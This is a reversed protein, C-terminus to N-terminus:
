RILSVGLLPRAVSADPDAAMVLTGQGKVELTRTWFQADAQQQGAQGTFTSPANPTFLVGRLVLASQGGIAHEATGESWLVLRRFHRNRCADDLGCTTAIPTTMLLAGSGGALDTYGSQLYTFTQPMYLRAQSVKYLRGSRIFLVADTAPPPSTTDPNAVTDATPCTPTSVNVPVNVALCADQSGLEVPGSTVVHGGRFVVLGAVKLGGPCDVYWNGTPVVIPPTSATGDCTFEPVAASPLTQFSGLSTSTPWVSAPVGTGGYMTELQDVWNSGGPACSTAVTCNFIDLVPKAGYRENLVTPTPQIPGSNYAKPPNGSPSPNLAYVQILGTGPGLPGDARIFNLNNTAAEIVAGQGNCTNGGSRGDSEVAIFGAQDGVGSVLISGQGSTKLAGCTTPELVNLAAIVDKSEGKEIARGVSASGITVDGVGLAGAFVTSRTRTVEVGVRDCPNTGDFSADVTQTVSGPAVDPATMLASEDRVPWTVRVVYGGGTWSAVKEATTANCTAAPATPLVDCSDSGAGLDDIGARLYRWATRCAKRPDAKSPDLPNLSSAAAVAASDAASRTSARGERMLALDVVTAAVGIVVLMLLGYLIAYVGAEDRRRSPCRM